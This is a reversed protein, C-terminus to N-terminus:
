MIQELAQKKWDEAINEIHRGFINVSLPIRKLKVDNKKRCMLAARKVTAYLAPTEAITHSKQNKETSNYCSSFLSRFM